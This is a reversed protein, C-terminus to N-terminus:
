EVGPNIEILRRCLTALMVKSESPSLHPSLRKWARAYIRQAEACCEGLAGSRRVLQVGERREDEQLPMSRPRCLLEVLRTRPNADLKKLAKAIVYTLKGEALDDGRVKTWNPTKAFDHVDDIIQFALGLGLAFDRCAARISAPSAAIVAATEALGMVPGATKDRYMQLIQATVPGDIWGNLNAPSMNGSFHLDQAQGFHARAHYTMILHQIELKQGPTLRPHDFVPLTALFYVANAANVSPGIGHRLYTCPEGRRLQSSDEIDDVILSGAHTLEAFVCVLSEFPSPDVGLTDLLCITFIPRWRKGGRGILDWVPDAIMKTMAAGSRKNGGSGFYRRLRSTSFREPFFERVRKDVRGATTKWFRDFDFIYGYGQFEGRGRGSIPEGRRIGTVAGAGEWVARMGGFVPIEQDDLLPSFVLTTELEPATLTWSVPYRIRTRPSEWFRRPEICLCGSRHMKGDAAQVCLFRAIVRRSRASRLVMLLWNSGDDLHIGFWDWGVTHRASANTRHLVHDGWQHDLWARGRIREGGREGDLGLRPFSRYFVDMASTKAPRDTDLTIMGSLPTLNVRIPLSTEPETFELELRAAKLELRFDQWGLRFPDSAMVVPADDREIGRLPGRASIEEMLVDIYGQDVSVKGATRRSSLFYDILAPNVRSSCASTKKDLNQVSLLLSHGRSGDLAPHVRHRFLSAMFAHSSGSATRFFGHVFWWEIATDERPRLAEGLDIRTSCGNRM